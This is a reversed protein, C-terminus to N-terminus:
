HLLNLFYENWISEVQIGDSSQISHVYEVHIGHTNWPILPSLLTSALVPVDPHLHSPSCFRSCYLECIQSKSFPHAQLFLSLLAWLQSFLCRPAQKQLDSLQTITPGALVPIDPHPHHWIRLYIMHCWMTAHHLMIYHSVTYVIIDTDLMSLVSTMLQLGCWVQILTADICADFVCKM